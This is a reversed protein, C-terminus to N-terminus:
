SYATKLGTAELRNLDVTLCIGGDGGWRVFLGAAWGGFSVTATM